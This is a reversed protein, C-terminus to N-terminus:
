RDVPVQLLRGFFSRYRMLVMRLDETTVDDGREWQGELRERQESFSSVLRDMLDSVLANAEEVSGRPEDVFRAQIENWKQEMEDRENAPFLEGEGHGETDSAAGEVDAEARSESESEEAVDRRESESPEDVNV